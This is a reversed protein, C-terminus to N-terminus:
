GIIENLAEIVRDLERESLRDIKKGIRLTSITRIQLIKVWVSKKGILQTPQYVLPFGVRQPKSTLPVVIATQSKENFVDRSLVLVPRLGSQEHGVVPNLDAWAVDGRLIRAM